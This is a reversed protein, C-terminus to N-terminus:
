RKQSVQEDISRAPQTTYEPAEKAGVLNDDVKSTANELRGGVVEDQGMTVNPAYSIKGEGRREVPIFVDFWRPLLFGLAILVM